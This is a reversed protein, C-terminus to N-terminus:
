VYGLTKLNQNVVNDFEEVDVGFFELADELDSSTIQDDSCFLDIM